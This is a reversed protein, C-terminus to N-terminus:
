CSPPARAAKAGPWGPFIRLDDDHISLPASAVFVVSPATEGAEVAPAFVARCILCTATPSGCTSADSEDPHHHGVFLALTAVLLVASAGAVLRRRLTARKINKEGRM